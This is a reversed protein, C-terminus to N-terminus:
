GIPIIETLCKCSAVCETVWKSSCGFINKLTPCNRYPNIYPCPNTCLRDECNNPCSACSDGKKYVPWGQFNGARYYHCAYFYVGKSACHTMGCGVRYSTSWVVQTYHGTKKWDGDPYKFLAVENHWATIVDTWSLPVSSYFLNEGMGYGKLERTDPPGHALVCKDAWAQASVAVDESYNMKLMNAATPSVNRRFHNHLNVIEDQVTRNTGPCLASQVQTEEPPPPSRASRRAQKIPWM